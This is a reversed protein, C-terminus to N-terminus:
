SGALGRGDELQQLRAAVAVPGHEHVLHAVHADVADDGPARRRWPRTLPPQMQQAFPTATRTANVRSSFFRGVRKSM